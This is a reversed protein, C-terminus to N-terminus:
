KLFMGGLPSLIGWYGLTIQLACISFICQRYRFHSWLDYFIALGSESVQWKAPVLTQFQVAKTLANEESTFPLIGM